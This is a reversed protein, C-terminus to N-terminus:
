PPELISSLPGTANFEGHKSDYESGCLVFQFGAPLQIFGEQIEFAVCYRNCVLCCTSGAFCVRITGFHSAEKTQCYKGTVTLRSFSVIGSFVIEV